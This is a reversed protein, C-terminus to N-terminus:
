AEIGAKDELWELDESFEIEALKNQIDTLKSEWHKLREQINEKGILNTQALIQLAGRVAAIEAGQKRLHKQTEARM